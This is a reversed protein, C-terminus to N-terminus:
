DEDVKYNNEEIYIENLMKKVAIVRTLRHQLSVSQAIETQYEQLYRSNGTIQENDLEISDRTILTILNRMLEQTCKIEKLVKDYYKKTLKDMYDKNEKNIIPICSKCFFCEIRGCALPAEKNTCIGEIIRRVNGELLAVEGKINSYEVDFDKALNQAQQKFDSILKESLKKAKIIAYKDFYNTYNMQSKLKDHHALEAIILPNEGYELLSGISLHRTDGVSLKVIKDKQVMEPIKFHDKAIFSREYVKGIIDRYFGFLLHQFRKLNLIEKNFTVKNASGKGFIHMYKMHTNHNFLFKENENAHLSKYEEILLYMEKTIRLSQIEVESTSVINNGENETNKIRPIEIYYKDLKENYSNCNSKLRIFEGPRMPIILTLCWWIYIPLYKKRLRNYERYDGKLYHYIIMKDNAFFEDIYENFEIIDEFPPLDRSSNYIRKRGCKFVRKNLVKIYDEGYQTPYFSLFSNVKSSLHQINGDIKGNSEVLMKKINDEFIGVKDYSFNNTQKVVNCILQVEMRLNTPSRNKKSFVEIAYAKIATKVKTKLIYQFEINARLENEKKDSLLWIDDGFNGTVIYGNEKLKEFKNKYEEIKEGNFILKETIWFKTGTEKNEELRRVKLFYARNAM